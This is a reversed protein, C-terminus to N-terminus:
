NYGYKGRGAIWNLTQWGSYDLRNSRLERLREIDHLVAQATEFDSDAPMAEGRLPAENWLSERGRRAAWGLRTMKSAVAWAPVNYSGAALGARVMAVKDARVGSDAVRLSLRTCAADHTRDRGDRAGSELPSEQASGAEGAGGARVAKMEDFSKRIAM